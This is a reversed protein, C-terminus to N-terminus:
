IQYSAYDGYPNEMALMEEKQMKGFYWRILRMTHNTGCYAVNIKETKMKEELWKCFPEVREEWVQKLSEGEPPPVDWSRRWLVAQEPFEKMIELKNKGTLAGYDREKLNEQPLYLINPFLKQLPALTQKCRIQPPSLFLDISKDRLLDALQHAQEEGKPTLSPDRRGSFIREANDTTECHRFIYLVPKISDDVKPLPASGQGPNQLSSLAASTLNDTSPM